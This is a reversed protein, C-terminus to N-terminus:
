ALPFFSFLFIGRVSVSAVAGTCCRAPFLFLLFCHPSNPSSASLSCLRIRECHASSLHQLLLHLRAPTLSPPRAIVSSLCATLSVCGVFKYAAREYLELAHQAERLPKAREFPLGQFESWICAHEGETGGPTGM